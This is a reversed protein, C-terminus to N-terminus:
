QGPLAGCIPMRAANRKWMEEWGTKHTAEAIHTIRVCYSLGIAKVFNETLFPPVLVDKDGVFHEQPLLALRPAIEMPDIFDDQPVSAHARGNGVVPDLNGAITRLSIVDHRWAALIAAVAGGGSYGVLNLYPHPVVALVYDLARNTSAYVQAALRGNKWTKDFCVSDSINFQCPHSIVVVNDSPDLAALRLGLNEDQTADVGPNESPAFGRVDGEVYVTIPQNTDLIRSFTTLRFSGATIEQRNLVGEADSTKVGGGSGASCGQSAALCLALAFYSFFHCSKMFVRTTIFLLAVM